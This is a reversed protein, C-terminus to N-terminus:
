SCYADVHVTYTNNAENSESIRGLPDAKVRITRVGDYDSKNRMIGIRVRARVTEGPALSNIKVDSDKFALDDADWARILPSVFLAKARANGRNKVVVDGVIVPSVFNCKGTAYLNISRIVLDPGFGYGHAGAVGIALMPTSSLIAAAAVSAALKKM